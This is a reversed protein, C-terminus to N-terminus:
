LDIDEPEYCRRYLVKEKPFPNHRGGGRTGMAMSRSIRGLAGKVVFQVAKASITHKLEELITQDATLFQPPQLTQKPAPM